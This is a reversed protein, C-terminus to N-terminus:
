VLLFLFCTSRFSSSLLYQLHSLFCVTCLSALNRPYDFSRWISIKKSPPPEMYNSSLFSSKNNDKSILTSWNVLLKIVV